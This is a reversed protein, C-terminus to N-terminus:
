FVFVFWIAYVLPARLLRVGEKKYHPKDGGMIFNLIRANDRSIKGKKINKLIEENGSEVGFGLNIVGISKLANLVEENICDARLGNAFEFILDYNRKKM